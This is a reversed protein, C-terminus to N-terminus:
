QEFAATAIWLWDRQQSPKSDVCFMLAVAQARGSLDDDYTEPHPLDESSDNTPPV